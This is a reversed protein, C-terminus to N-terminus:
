EHYFPVVAMLKTMLAQLQVELDDDNVALEEKNEQKEKPVAFVVDPYQTKFDEWKVKHIWIYGGNYDDIYYNGESLWLYEGDFAEVIGVHGYQPFLTNKEISFVAGATPKSSLAFKDPHANVIEAANTKGNGRAGSDFGYIQYFRAWAFWTCQGVGFPNGKLLFGEYNRTLFWDKKLAGETEGIRGLDELNVPHYWTSSVYPITQPKIAKLEDSEAVNPNHVPETQILESSDAEPKEEPKTSPTQETQDPQKVPESPTEETEGPQETEPEPNKIEEESPQEVSESPKETPQTEVPQTPEPVTPEEPTTPEETVPVDSGEESALNSEEVIKNTETLESSQEQTNEKEILNNEQAFTALTSFPITGACMLIALTASLFQSKKM